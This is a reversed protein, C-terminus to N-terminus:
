GTWNFGIDLEVVTDGDGNTATGQLDVSMTDGNEPMQFGRGGSPHNFDIRMGFDGNGTNDQGTDASGSINIDNFTGGTIGSTVLSNLETSFSTAGTARLYM